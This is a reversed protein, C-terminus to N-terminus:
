EEVRIAWQYVIPVDWPNQRLRVEVLHLGTPLNAIHFCLPKRESRASDANLSSMNNLSVSLPPIRGGNLMVETWISTETVSACYRVAKKSAYTDAQIAEVTPMPHESLYQATLLMSADPTRQPDGSQAYVFILSYFSCIGCLGLCLIIAGWRLIKKLPNNSADDNEYTMKTGQERSQDGM